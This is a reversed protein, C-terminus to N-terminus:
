SLKQFNEIFIHSQINLNQKKKYKERLLHIHKIISTSYFYQKGSFANWQSRNTIKNWREKCLQMTNGIRLTNVSDEVYAKGNILM